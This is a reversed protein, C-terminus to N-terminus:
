NLGRRDLSIRPRTSGIADPNRRGVDNTFYLEEKIIKVNLKWFNSRFM